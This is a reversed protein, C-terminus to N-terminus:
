SRPAPAGPTASHLDIRADRAVSGGGSLKQLRLTGNLPLGRLAEIPLNFPEGPDSAPRRYRDLDLADGQLDVRWDRPERWRGGLSGQWQTDDLRLKLASLQVNDEDLRWHTALTLARLVTADRMPPATVGQAALWTRLSPSDFQLEGEGALPQWQLPHAATLRIDANAWRAQLPAIEVNAVAGPRGSAGPSSAGVASASPLNLVMRATSLSVQEGAPPLEPGMVMAAFSMDALLWQARDPTAEVSARANTHELRWPQADLTARFELQADRLEIPRISLGIPAGGNAKGQVAAMEDLMAAVNLRGTSDPRVDLQLGDIIVGGIQWATQHLGPWQLTFQLSRWRLLPEAGGGIAGPGSQVALAPWLDWRLPGTLQLALGFRLRAQREIEPRLSDPNVWWLLLLAAIIPLVLLAAIAGLWWRHARKVREKYRL